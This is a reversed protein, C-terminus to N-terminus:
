AIGIMRCMRTEQCDAPGMSCNMDVEFRLLRVALVDSVFYCIGCDAVKKKMWGHTMMRPRDASIRQELSAAPELMEKNSM